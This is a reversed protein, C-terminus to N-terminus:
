LKSNDELCSASDEEQHLGCKQIVIVSACANTIPLIHAHMIVRVLKELRKGHTVLDDLKISSSLHEVFMAVARVQQWKQSCPFACHSM